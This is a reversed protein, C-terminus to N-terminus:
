KLIDALYLEDKGATLLDGNVSVILSLVAAVVAVDLMTEPVARWYRLSFSLFHHRQSASDWRQWIQLKISTKQPFHFIIYNPPSVLSDGPTPFGRYSTNNHFAIPKGANGPYRLLPRPKHLAAAPSTRRQRNSGTFLLRYILSFGLDETISYYIM